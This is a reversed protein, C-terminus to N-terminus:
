AADPLTVPFSPPDDDDVYPELDNNFLRLQVPRTHMWPLGSPLLDRIGDITFWPQRVTEIWVLLTARNPSTRGSEYNNITKPSVRLIDAMQQTSIRADRRAKEMLEGLTWVPLVTAAM